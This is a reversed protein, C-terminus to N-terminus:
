VDGKGAYPAREYDEPQVDDMPCDRRVRGIEQTFIHDGTNADKYSAFGGVFSYGVTKGDIVIPQLDFGKDEMRQAHELPILGHGIPPERYIDKGIRYVVM